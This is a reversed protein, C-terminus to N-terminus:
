RVYPSAEGRLARAGAIAGAFGLVLALVPHMGSAVAIGLGFCAGVFFVAMWYATCVLFTHIMHMDERYAIM